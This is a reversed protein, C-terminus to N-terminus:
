ILGQYSLQTEIRLDGQFIANYICRSLYAVESRIEQVEAQIKYDRLGLDIHKWELLKLDERVQSPPIKM